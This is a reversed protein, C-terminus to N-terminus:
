MCMQKKTESGFKGKDM